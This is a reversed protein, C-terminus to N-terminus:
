VGVPPRAVGPSQGPVVQGSAGGQNVAQNGTGANGGGQQNPFGSQSLVMQQQVETQMMTVHANIHRLIEKKIEEPVTPDLLMNRHVKIHAVHDEGEEPEGSDGQLFRANEEEPTQVNEGPVQPLFRTLGMEDLGDILWKTLSHLAQIGPQTQVSFFPNQVLLQYIAIRKNVEQNKNSTLVNGTLEFDPISKLAFDSITVNEFKWPNDKSDGVIRMFKNPPMNDRYLLFWRKFIDQITNVKRKVIHNMRVNGQAVVIEAKKAPGTPDIRSEIGATFDSIGFLLQSWQIILELSANMQADPAPLKFMTVSKPDSTPYAFGNKLKIPEKRQNGTPSFFIIPNNSQTVGFIYQNFLADYAKQISDLFEMIGTGARRGEDDPIFYDMGIPRMKLPFKNKRLSCLCESKIHVLAIVEEELEESEVAEDESDTKIVNIRLKGYFEVFEQEFEGVPIQNGDYDEQNSMESEGGAWEDIDQISGKFMKGQLEDRLYDDYSIRVKRMEWVPTQGMISNEPQYYDKRSFIELKPGNYLLKQEEKEQYVPEQTEPDILPQSPDAPNFIIERKIETGYEKVWHVIYPCEGNKDSSHFLRDINEFIKLENDASWNLFTSLKNVKKVDGEETPLVRGIDRPTFFTNMVNAHIVELAVTSLPTRYNPMSGDDGPVDKRVMRFIDDYEDIKDEIEQHSEKVDKFRTTIYTAIREKELISMGDLLYGKNRGKLQRLYDKENSANIEKIIEDPSTNLSDQFNPM